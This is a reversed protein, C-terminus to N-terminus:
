SVLRMGTREHAEGLVREFAAYDAGDDFVCDRRVGRNLVHYALGGTAVRLRRPM